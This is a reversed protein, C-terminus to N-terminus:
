AMERVMCTQRNLVPDPDLLMNLAEGAFISVVVPEVSTDLRPRANIDRNTLGPWALGPM